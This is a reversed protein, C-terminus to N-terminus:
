AVGKMKQIVIIFSEEDLYGRVRPYDKLDQVWKLYHNPDLSGEFCPPKTM